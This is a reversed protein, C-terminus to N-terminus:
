YNRGSLVGVTQLNCNVHISVASNVELFTSAIYSYHICLVALLSVLKVQLYQKETQIDACFSFVQQDSVSM